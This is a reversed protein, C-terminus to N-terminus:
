RLSAVGKRCTERVGRSGATFVTLLSVYPLSLRCAWYLFPLETLCSCSSNGTGAEELRPDTDGGCPQGRPDMMEASLWIVCQPLERCPPLCQRLRKGSTRPLGVSAVLQQSSTYGLKLVALRPNLFVLSIM